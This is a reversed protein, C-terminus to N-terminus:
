RHECLEENSFSEPAASWGVKDFIVPANNFVVISKSNINYASFSRESQGFCDNFCGLLFSSIPHLRSQLNNVGEVIKVAEKQTPSFWQIKEEKWIAFIHNQEWWFAEINQFETSTPNRVDLIEVDFPFYFGTKAIYLNDTSWSLIGLAREQESYFSIQTRQNDKVSYVFIQFRGEADYDTYAV